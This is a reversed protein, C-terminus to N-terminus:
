GYHGFCFASVQRDPHTAHEDRLVCDERSAPRSHPRSLGITGLSLSPTRSTANSALIMSCAPGEAPPRTM